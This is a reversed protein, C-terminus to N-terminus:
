LPPNSQTTSLPHVHIHLAHVLYMHLTHTCDCICVCVHGCVGVCFCVQPGGFGRFATNSPLNTKCIRGRVRFNPVNYTSDCHLLARDLVGISLDLTNGGNSYLQLDVALVNGHADCGAKYKIYFPHRHGTWGMDEDRDLVLRIARRLHWAPPAILVNVATARSEKGGFGGGLRKTKCTIKHQPIGM